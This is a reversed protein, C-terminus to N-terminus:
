PEGSLVGLVVALGVGTGPVIGAYADGQLPAIRYEDAHEQKPIVELTTVTEVTVGGVEVVVFIMVPVTAGAGKRGM